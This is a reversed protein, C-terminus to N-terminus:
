ENLIQVNPFIKIMALQWLNKSSVCGIHNCRSRYIKRMNYVSYNFM